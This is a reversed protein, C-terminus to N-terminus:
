QIMVLRAGPAGADSIPQMKWPAAPDDTRSAIGVRRDDGDPNSSAFGCILDKKGDGDVDAYQPSENSCVPVLVHSQWVGGDKGPNQLWIAAKGPWTVEVIDTWGDGNLDDAFANFCDSYAKPEFQKVEALIPVPKWDPAAYYLGGAAIDNKGDGNFDGVAVGESRFAADIRHKEFEIKPEDASVPSALRGCFLVALTALSAAFRLSM